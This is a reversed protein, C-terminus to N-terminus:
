EDGEDFDAPNGEDDSEDEVGVTFGQRELQDILQDRKLEYEDETEAEITVQVHM